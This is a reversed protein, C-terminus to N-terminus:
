FLTTVKEFKEADLTGKMSTSWLLTTVKEFEEADLTEKM